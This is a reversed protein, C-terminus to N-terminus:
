EIPLQFVHATDAAFDAPIPSCGVDAAYDLHGFALRAVGSAAIELARVVGVATEILAVVATDRGVRSSIEALMAPDKTVNTLLDSFSGLAGDRLTQNQNLMLSQSAVKQNSTAFWDHWILTMREILPQNGRVM